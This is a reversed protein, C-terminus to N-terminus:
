IGARERRERKKRRKFIFIREEKRVFVIFTGKMPTEGSESRDQHCNLILTRSRM